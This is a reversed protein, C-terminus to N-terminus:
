KTSKPKIGEIGEMKGSNMVVLMLLSILFIIVGLMYMNFTLGYTEASFGVIAPGFIVGTFAISSVHSITIPIPHPSQKVSQRYIIPMVNSILFGFLFVSIYIIYINQSLVSLFLILSGIMAFYPGVIKENLLTILKSASFNSLIEGINFLIVISGVMYLPAYLDNLLWLPSWQIIIGMSAFIFMNISAFTIIKYSPIVFKPKDNKIDHKRKLGYFYMTISSIFVLCGIIFTTITPQINMGICVSSISGGIIFGISFSSKFIPNLIKNSKEEIIAVQTFINPAQIGISVGWSVLLLIYIIYSQYFFILFPIFAYMIRAIILCNTSGIKPLLYRTTLLNTLVTFIGFIVLGRSFESETMEILNFLIPTHVLFTSFTLTALVGQSFTSIFAINLEKTEKYNM